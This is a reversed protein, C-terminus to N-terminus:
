GGKLVNGLQRIGRNTQRYVLIVLNRDVCKLDVYEFVDDPNKKNLDKFFGTIHVDYPQTNFEKFKIM